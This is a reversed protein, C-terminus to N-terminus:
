NWFVEKLEVDILLFIVKMMGVKWLEVKVVGDVFVDLEVIIM